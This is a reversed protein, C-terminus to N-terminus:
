PLTVGQTLIAQVRHLDMEELVYDAPPLPEAPSLNSRIYLTSLGAAQAGQIDCLGDNGIMIASEPPISRETLLREYFRSDPKKCGYDSSLYIGDFLGEIGLSQLEYATFIRQANSLLWVGRGSARLAKLLEIAGDYLRIYHLSSERFHRGTRIALALDANLGKAQFLHQFVDEIRIEPHADPRPPHAASELRRVTQFFADRLADPAYGAGRARYWAAMAEWLEPATEDTHIDVLTGYLDFICHQYWRMAMAGSKMFLRTCLM